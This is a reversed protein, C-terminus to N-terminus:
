PLHRQDPENTSPYRTLDELSDPLHDVGGFEPVIISRVRARLGPRVQLYAIEGAGISECDDELLLDPMEREVIEGYSMGASRALVRGPPFGHRSLVATDQAVEEPRQHSSLYDIQAGQAQWGRLKGAAGGIPVYTAYRRLSPETRGRSQEVREVRSRGLGGHHMILTGQLFVLLRM